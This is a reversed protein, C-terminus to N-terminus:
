IIDSLDIKGNGEKLAKEAAQALKKMAELKALKYVSYIGLGYLIGWAIGLRDNKIRKLFDGKM